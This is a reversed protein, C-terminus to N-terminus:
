CSVTNASPCTTGWCTTGLTIPGRADINNASLQGGGPTSFTEMDIDLDFEVNAKANPATM